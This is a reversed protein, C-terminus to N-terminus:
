PKLYVEPLAVDLDKIILKNLFEYEEYVCKVKREIVELKTFILQKLLNRSIHLMRDDTKLIIERLDVSEKPNFVVIKM